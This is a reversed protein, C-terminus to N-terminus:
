TAETTDSETLGWPSCGVLSGRGQPEGPLLVPTPTGDGEGCSGSIPALDTHSIPSSVHAHFHFHLQETTDSEKHGWPSYGALSRWGHSKEPSFVPTLQWNRRCPIKRVWPDFRTEWIAPLSKVLQAVLSNQMTKFYRGM